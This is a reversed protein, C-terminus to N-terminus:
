GDPGVQVGCGESRRSGCSRSSLSHKQPPRADDSVGAAPWLTVREGCRLKGAGDRRKRTCISLRALAFGPATMRAVQARQSVQRSFDFFITRILTTPFRQFYPPPLSQMSPRTGSSTLGTAFIRAPESDGGEVRSKKQAVWEKRRRRARRRNIYGRGARRGSLPRLLLWARRVRASERGLVSLCAAFLGPVIAPRARATPARWHTLSSTEYDAGSQRAAQSFEGSFMCNWTRTGCRRRATLEALHKRAHPSTMRGQAGAVVRGHRPPEPTSSRSKSM